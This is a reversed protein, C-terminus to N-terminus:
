PTDTTFDQAQGGAERAALYRNRADNLLFQLVPKAHKAMDHFADMTKKNCSLEKGNEATYIPRYGDAESKLLIAQSAKQAADTFVDPANFALIADALQELPIDNGSEENRDILREVNLRDDATVGVLVVDYEESLKQVHDAMAQGGGLQELLLDAKLEKAWATLAVDLGSAEARILAYERGSAEYEPLISKYFQFDSVVLNESVLAYIQFLREIDANDFTAGAWAEPAALREDFQDLLTSKGAAMPGVVLFASPKVPREESLHAVRSELIQRHLERREPTDVIHHTANELIYAHRDEPIGSLLREQKLQMYRQATQAVIDLIHDPVNLM